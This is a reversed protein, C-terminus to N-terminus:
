KYPLQVHCLLNTHTQLTLAPDGLGWPGAGLWLDVLVHSICRAM